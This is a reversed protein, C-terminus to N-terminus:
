LSLHAPGLYLATFEIRLLIKCLWIKYTWRHVFGHWKNCILFRKAYQSNLMYLLFYVCFLAVKALFLAEDSCIDVELGIIVNQIKIFILRRNQIKRLDNEKM